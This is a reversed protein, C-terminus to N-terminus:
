RAGQYEGSDDRLREHYVFIPSYDSMKKPSCSKAGGRGFNISRRRDTVLGRYVIKQIWLTV